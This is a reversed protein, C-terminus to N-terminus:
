RIANHGTRLGHASAPKEEFVEKNSQILESKIFPGRVPRALLADGVREIKRLM